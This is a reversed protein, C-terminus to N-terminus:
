TPAGPEIEAIQRLDIREGIAPPMGLGAPRMHKRDAIESQGAAGAILQEARVPRGPVGVKGPLIPALSRGVNEGVLDFRPQLFPSLPRGKGILGRTREAPLLPEPDAEADASGPVLLLHEFAVLKEVLCAEHGLRLPVAARGCLLPRDQRFKSTRHREVMAAYKGRCEPPEATLQLVTGHDELQQRGLERKVVQLLRDFGDGARQQVLLIEPPKDFLAAQDFRRSVNRGRCSAPRRPEVAEAACDHHLTRRRAQPDLGPAALAFREHSSVNPQLFAYGLEIDFAVKLAAHIQRSRPRLASRRTATIAVAAIAVCAQPLSRRTSVLCPGILISVTARPRSRGQPRTKRGSPRMSTVSFGPRKRMTALSPTMEAGM